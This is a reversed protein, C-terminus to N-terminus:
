ASVKNKKRVAAADGPRDLSELLEAQRRMAEDVSRRKVHGYGRILQPIAAIRVSVDHRTKDLSAALDGVLKEYEGILRREMRREEQYGFPDFPTGRLGRLRSLLKLAKLMWPGFSRKTREGTFPDRGGILPPSFNFSIRFGDEFNETLSRMFSGDTYLRAVEYEDKYAMLKFLNKAVAVTFADSGPVAKQEALRVTEVFGAYRRAYSEGQYGRLFDVRIRVIDDLTKAVERASGDLHACDSAAEIDHAAIRGWLFAQKNMEVSVGNLEIARMIAASSIPILGNQFGHGLMFLNMAIADGMLSFAFTQADITELQNRGLAAAVRQRLERSRFDLDPNLVFDATPAIHENVVSRTHGSGLADIVEQDAAVVLDCAILGDASGDPVRASHLQGPDGAIRVHSVVAGNKQALGISDLVSSARGDVHAAVGLLAGLTVIGTGGIGTILLNHPREGLAVEPEPLAGLLADPIATAGRKRVVANDVSVFSPCFGKNCSYDKNCSSQNIMRKRGFETEVPEVSICNSKRGCDGCGECVLENIFMRKAPDPFSGR